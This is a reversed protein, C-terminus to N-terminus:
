EATGSAGPNVVEELEHVFQDFTRCDSEDPIVVDKARFQEKLLGYLTGRYDDREQEARRLAQRLREVEQLLDAPAGNTDPTAPSSAPQTPESNM